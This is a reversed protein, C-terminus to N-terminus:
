QGQLLLLIVPFGPVKVRKDLAEYYELVQWPGLGGESVFLVFADAKAIEEALRPLWYGGARLSKKAFFIEPAPVAQGLRTQLQETLSLDVSNYSLFWRM